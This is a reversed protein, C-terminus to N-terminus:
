TRAVLESTTRSLAEEARKRNSIDTLMTLCGGGPVPRSEVRAHASSGDPRRLLIECADPGHAAARLHARRARLDVGETFEALTARRGELAAGLLAEAAQNACGM